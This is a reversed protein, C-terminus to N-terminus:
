REFRSGPEFYLYLNKHYNSIDTFTFVRLWIIQSKSNRIELIGEGAAIARAQPLWTAGELTGFIDQRTKVASRQDM